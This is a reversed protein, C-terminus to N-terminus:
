RMISGEASANLVGVVMIRWVAPGIDSVGIIVMVADNIERM